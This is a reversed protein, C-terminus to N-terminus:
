NCVSQTCQDMAVRILYNNQVAGILVSLLNTQFFRVLDGNLHPSSALEWRIAREKSKRETPVTGAM